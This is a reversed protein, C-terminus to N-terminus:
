GKSLFFPYDSRTLRVNTRETKKLSNATAVKLQARLQEERDKPPPIYQDREAMVEAEEADIPEFIKPDNYNPKRKM